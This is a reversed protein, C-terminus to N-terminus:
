INAAWTGSVARLRHRLFTMAARLGTRVKGLPEGLQEAIERETYGGFVALDLAQRQAKPLQNIVKKLLERRQDIVLVEEPRPLWALSKKLAAASSSDLPLLNRLARLRDIAARRAIITLWVDLSVGAYPSSRAENWLRLFVDRLVQEAAGRDGLIALLMGLLGPAFHDYLEGLARDDRKVVRAMLQEVSRDQAM